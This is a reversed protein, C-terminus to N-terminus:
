LGACGGSIDLKWHAANYLNTGDKQAVFIAHLVLNDRDVTFTSVATSPLNANFERAGTTHNADPPPIEGVETWTGNGGLCMKYLRLVPTGSRDEYLVYRDGNHVVAKPAFVSGRLPQQIYSWDGPVECDGAIAADCIWSSLELPPVQMEGKAVVLHYTNSADASTATSPFNTPVGMVHAADLLEFTAIEMTTLAMSDWRDVHVWTGHMGGMTPKSHYVTYRDGLHNFSQECHDEIVGAGV